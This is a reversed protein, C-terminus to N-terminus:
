RSEGYPAQPEQASYQQMRGEQFDHILQLCHTVVAEDFHRQERKLLGGLQTLLAIARAAESTETLPANLKKPM